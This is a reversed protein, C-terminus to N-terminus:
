TGAHNTKASQRHTSKRQFLPAFGILSVQIASCHCDVAESALGLIHQPPVHETALRRCTTGSINSTGLSGGRFASSPPELRRPGVFSAPAESATREQAPAGSRSCPSHSWALHTIGQQFAFWRSKVRLASAWGSAKKNFSKIM